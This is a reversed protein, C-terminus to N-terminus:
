KVFAIVAQGTILAWILGVVSLGLAGAIWIVVRMAPALKELERLRKEHDEITSSMSDRKAKDKELDQIKCDLSDIKSEMRSQNVSISELKELLVAATPGAM